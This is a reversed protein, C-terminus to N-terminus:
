KLIDLVESEEYGLTKLLCNDNYLYEFLYIKNDDSKELKQNDKLSINEDEGVEKIFFWGYQTDLLAQFDKEWMEKPFNLRVYEYDERTNLHKPYGVM